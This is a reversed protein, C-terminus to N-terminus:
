RPQKGSLVRELNEVILGAAIPGRIRGFLQIELYYVQKNKSARMTQLVANSEWDRRAIEPKSANGALVIVIDPDFAPMAEPSVKTEKAGATMLSFGLERMLGGTYDQAGYVTYLSDAPFGGNWAILLKKGAIIPALKAKAASITQQYNRIVAQARAERGLATAITQLGTKWGEHSTGDFLLTPAIKSLNPYAAQAFNEGILLDPKLSLLVELSPNFRNGVNIPNSTVYPGLYRIQKLPQGYNTVSLQAAEGYGVPQVGLSLLIDLMHPGLAVIRKPAAPITTEGAFHPLVKPYQTQASSTLLVSTTLVIALAAFRNM